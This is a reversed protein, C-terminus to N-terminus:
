QADESMMAKGLAAIAQHTQYDSRPTLSQVILLARAALLRRVELIM